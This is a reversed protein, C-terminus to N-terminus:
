VALDWDDDSKPLERIEIVWNSLIYPIVGQIDDADHKLLPSVFMQEYEATRINPRNNEWLDEVAQNWVFYSSLLCLDQPVDLEVVVTSERHHAYDGLLGAATGVTPPSFLKGNCSHWCWFPATDLALGIRQSWQDAM